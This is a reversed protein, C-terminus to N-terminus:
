RAMHAQLVGLVSAGITHLAVCGLAVVIVVALAIWIKRNKM